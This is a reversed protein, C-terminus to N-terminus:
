DDACKGLERKRDIYDRVDNLRYGDKIVDHIYYNWVTVIDESTLTCTQVVIDAIKSLEFM